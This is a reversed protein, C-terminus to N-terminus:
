QAVTVYKLFSHSIKKVITGIQNVNKYQHSDIWVYTFNRELNYSIAKRIWGLYVASNKDHYIDVAAVFTMKGNHTITHYNKPTMQNFLPFRTKWIYDILDDESIRAMNPYLDQQISDRITIICPAKPDLQKFIDLSGLDQFNHVVGFPNTDQYVESAFSFIEEVRSNQSNQPLYLVFMPFPVRFSEIDNQSLKSKMTSYTELIDQASLQMLSPSTARYAFQLFNEAKPAEDLRTHIKGRGRTSKLLSFEM